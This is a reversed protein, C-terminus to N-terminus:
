TKEGVWLLHECWLLLTDLSLLWFNLWLSIFCKEKKATQTYTQIKKGRMNRTTNNHLEKTISSPLSCTWGHVVALGAPTRTLSLRRQAQVPFGRGKWVRIKSCSIKPWWTAWEKWSNQGLNCKINGALWLISLSLTNSSFCFYWQRFCLFVSGFGQAKKRARGVAPGRGRAQEPSEHPFCTSHHQPSPITARLLTLLWTSPRWSTLLSGLGIHLITWFRPITRHLPWGLGCTRLTRTLLCTLMDQTWTSFSLHGDLHVLLCNLFVCLSYM